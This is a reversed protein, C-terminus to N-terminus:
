IDDMDDDTRRGGRDAFSFVTERREEAAEADEVQERLEAMTPFTRYETAKGGHVAITVSRLKGMETAIHRWVQETESFEGGRAAKKFAGDEDMFELLELLEYSSM